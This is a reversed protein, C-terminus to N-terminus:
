VNLLHAVDMARRGTALAVTMQAHHSLGRLGSAGEVGRAVQLIAGGFRCLAAVVCRIAAGRVQWVDNKSPIPRKERPNERRLGYTAGRFVQGALVRASYRGDAKATLMEEYSLSGQQFLVRCKADAMFNSFLSVTENATSAHLGRGGEMSLVQMWLAAQAATPPWLAVLEEPLTPCEGEQVEPPQPPCRLPPLASRRVMLRRVEAEEIIDLVVEVKAPADDM